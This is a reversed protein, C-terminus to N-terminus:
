QEQQLLKPSGLYSVKNLYYPVFNRHVLHDRYCNFVEQIISPHSFLLPQSWSESTVFSTSINSAERVCILYITTM